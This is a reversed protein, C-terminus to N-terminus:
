NYAKVKLVFVLKSVYIAIYIYLLVLNYYHLCWFEIIMLVVFGGGSVMKGNFVEEIKGVVVVGDYGVSSEVRGDISVGSIRGTETSSGGGGEVGATIRRGAFRIEDSIETAPIEGVALEGTVEAELYIFIYM